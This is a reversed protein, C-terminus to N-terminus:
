HTKIFNKLATTNGNFMDFDNSKGDLKYDDTQQWLEWETGSWAGPMRPEDTSQYDCIWLPYEAFAPDTLYDNGKDVGAYVIPKRGTEKELIQLLELLVNAAEEATQEPHIGAGEFDVIPPFDMAALPGVTNIYNDAQKQPDDDSEYFHYAGVIFGKEHATAWNNEFDPDQWTIGDTARFIIFTVSDEGNYLDDIETGQNSSLDVGYANEEDSDSDSDTETTETSTTDTLTDASESGDTQNGAGGACGTLVATAALLAISKKTNM